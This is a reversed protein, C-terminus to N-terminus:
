AEPRTELVKRALELHEVSYESSWVTLESCIQESRCCQRYRKWAPKGLRRQLFASVTTRSVQALDAIHRLSKAPAAQEVSGGATWRHIKQLALLVMIDGAKKDKPTRGWGWTRRSSHPRKVERLAAVLEPVLRKVERAPKVPSASTPQRKLEASRVLEEILRRDGVSLTRHLRREVEAFVQLMYPPTDAM